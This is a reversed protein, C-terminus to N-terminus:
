NEKKNINYSRRIDKALERLDTLEPLEARRGTTTLRSQWFAQEVNKMGLLGCGPNTLPGVFGGYRLFPETNM